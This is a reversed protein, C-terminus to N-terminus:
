LAAEPFENLEAAIKDACGSFREGNVQARVIRFGTSQLWAIVCQATPTWWTGQYGKYGHPHFQASMGEGPSILGEFFLAGDAKLARHINSLALLPNMLHHWVALFFVYDFFADEDLNYVSGRRYRASSNLAKKACNFGTKGPDHLDLAYSEAGRLSLEHAIPGDWCGVDLTTKGTLDAPIRYSDLFAKPNVSHSGPAFVGPHIEWSHFWRLNNM